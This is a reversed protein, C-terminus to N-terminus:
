EKTGTFNYSLVTGDKQRCKLGGSVQKGRVEGLWTATGETESTQEVEFEAENPETEGCYAAPKFGKALLAASTFKGDAFILTDAFEKEGKDAAAKEPVVTVKCTTGDLVGASVSLTAGIALLTVVTLGSVRDTTM